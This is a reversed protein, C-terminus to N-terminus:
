NVWEILNIVPQHRVVVGKPTGTSGSTFIIYATNQATLVTSPNHNPQKELHWGTWLHKQDRSADRLASVGNLREPAPAPTKVNLCIVHKLPTLNWQLAQVTALQREETIIVSAETSSLIQELRAQPWKVDLPIYAGGAKLIALVGIIMQDSRSMFHAVLTEPGVGLSQLQHALQNARENLERYTLTAPPMILDPQNVDDEGAFLVAVAEPTREVQEEFLQHICKDKPYDTATDNWEVLIQHREAETLLPLEAISQEPNAVIGALLTEFHGMMRQITPKDFLDTCYVCNGQLRDEMEWLYLELDFRTTQIGSSTQTVTLGPLEFDGMPANQLAFVVQFLPNYNLNRGPQIEEVLREFPLDQHDYAAQTTEQVQALVELFSPPQGAVESLDARLVLTNVFFGILPEIERRNRNAIPSGVVVDSQGSYRSLFLQFATLLTMYLTAGQELSLRRLANTLEAKIEIQVADGRFSQQPPRPYDTPLQLREPAGALRQKWYDLQRELVEGQLYNRQWVAFDAYQIPLDPLPSPQGQSFAEYLAALEGVLVGMSWGDAAIHHLTLLLIHSTDITDTTPSSLRLLRARLMPDRSLDFPRTAEAATLRQAEAAQEEPGYARLDVLPLDITVHSHIVQYPTGDNVTFTTRLSGHRQVIEQLSQQLASVNLPGSLNLAIPMNYAIGSGFQDLFWLRQQAFSLVKPVEPPLVPISETQAVQEKAAHLFALIDTKNAKIQRKLDATLTNKAARLRLKDGEAWVKCGIERLHNLLSVIKENKRM